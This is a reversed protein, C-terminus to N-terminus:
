DSLSRLFGKELGVLARPEGVTVVFDDEIRIGGWDPFYVGPEVTVVMNPRLAERALRHLRPVEHVELGLGHGTSHTFQAEWGAGEFVRRAAADVEAGPVGSRLAECAAGQASLVCAYTQLQRRTPAGIVFTRTLDSCYGSLRAGLDCLLLDGAVIQRASTGAHPLATRPGSAVITEFAPGEAGLRSMRYDLEAAIEAERVGPKILPLTEELALAAIRGADAITAIEEETKISRLDEVVGDVPEWERGDAAEVLRRWDAYSLHRAEFGARESPWIESARRSIESLIDERLILLEVSGDGALQEEAMRQYRGDTVFIARDLALLLWGASGSFGTLYRLNPLHTVLLLQLDLEALRARVGAVRHAYSSVRM